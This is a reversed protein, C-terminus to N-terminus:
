DKEGMFKLRALTIRDRKVVQQTIGELKKVPQVPKAANPNRAKWAAVGATSHTGNPVKIRRAM